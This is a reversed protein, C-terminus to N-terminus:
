RKRRREKIKTITKRLKPMKRAVKLMRAAKVAKTAKTVRIVKTARTVKAVRVVRTVRFLRLGRIIRMEMWTTPISGLIDAWSERLCQRKSDTHHFRFGLETIFVACIGLDIWGFLEELAPDLEFVISMVLLVLAFIALGAMTMDIRSLRAEQLNSGFDILLIFM